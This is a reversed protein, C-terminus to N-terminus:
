MGTFDVWMKSSGYLAILEQTPLKYPLQYFVVLALQDLPSM